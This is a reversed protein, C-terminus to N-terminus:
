YNGGLKLAGRDNVKLIEEKILLVAIRVEADNLDSYVTGVLALAIQNLVQKYHDM